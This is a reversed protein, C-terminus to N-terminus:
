PRTDLFALNETPSDHSLTYCLETLVLGTLITRYRVTIHYLYRRIFSRKKVKLLVDQAIPTQYFLM